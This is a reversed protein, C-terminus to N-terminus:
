GRNERLFTVETLDPPPGFVALNIYVLVSELEASQSTAHCCFLGGAEIDISILACSELACFLGQTALALALYRTTICAARMDWGMKNQPAALTAGFGIRVGDCALLATM